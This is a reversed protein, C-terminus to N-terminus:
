LAGRSRAPAVVRLLVVSVPRQCGSCSGMGLGGRRAEVGPVSVFGCVCVRVSRSRFVLPRVFRKWWAAVRYEGVTGDLRLRRVRASRARSRSAEAEEAERAAVTAGEPSGVGCAREVGSAGVGQSARTRPRGAEGGAADGDCRKM